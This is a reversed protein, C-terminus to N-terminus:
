PMHIVFQPDFCNVGFADQIANAGESCLGTLTHTQLYLEDPDSSAPGHYKIIIHVEAGQPNLLGPGIIHQDPGDPLEGIEIEARFKGKGDAGVVGGTAWFVSANTAPNFFIDEIDCVGDTCNEPNNIIVWWNTYAGPPLGSTKIKYELEDDERKLKSVKKNTPPFLTGPVLVGGGFDGAPQFVQVEAREWSDKLFVGNDDDTSLITNSTPSDTGAPSDKACNVMLMFMAMVLISFIFLKM